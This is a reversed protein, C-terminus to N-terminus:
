LAETVLEYLAAADREATKRGAKETALAGPFALVSLPRGDLCVTLEVGVLRRVIYELRSWPLDRTNLIAIVELAVDLPTM